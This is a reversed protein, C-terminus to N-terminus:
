DEYLKTSYERNLERGNSDIKFVTLYNQDDIAYLKQM